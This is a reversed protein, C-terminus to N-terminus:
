ASQNSDSKRETTFHDNLLRFALLGLVGFALGVLGWFLPDLGLFIERREDIRLRVESYLAQASVIHISAVLVPLILSWFLVVPPIGLVFTLLLCLAIILVLGIIIAKTSKM